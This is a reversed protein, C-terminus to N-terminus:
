PLTKLLGDVSTPKEINRADYMDKNPTVDIRTENVSPVKQDFNVQVKGLLLRMVSDKVAWLHADTLFGDVGDGSVQVHYESGYSWLKDGVKPESLLTVSNREAGEQTVSVEFSAHYPCCKLADNQTPLRISLCDNQAVAATDAEKYEPADVAHYLVTQGTYEYGQFTEGSCQYTLADVTTSFTCNSVSSSGPCSSPLTLLPSSSALVRSSLSSLLSSPQAYATVGSLTWTYEIEDVEQKIEGAQFIPVSCTSTTNTSVLQATLTPVVFIGPISTLRLLLALLLLLRGSKWLAGNLMSLISAELSFATSHDELTKYETRASEWLLKTLGIKTAEAICIAYVFAAANGISLLWRQELPVDVVPQDAAWSYFFHHGAAVGLALVLWTAPLLLLRVRSPTDSSSTGASPFSPSTPTKEYESAIPLIHETSPSFTSSPGSSPPYAFPDHKISVSYSQSSSRRRLSSSM